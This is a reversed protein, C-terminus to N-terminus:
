KSLDTHEVGMYHMSGRPGWALYKTVIDKFIRVNNQFLLRECVTDGSGASPSTRIQWFGKM